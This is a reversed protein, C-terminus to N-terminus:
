AYLEVSGDAGATSYTIGVNANLSGSGVLRLHLTSPQVRFTHAQGYDLVFSSVVTDGVTFTKDTWTVGDNSEQIKYTLQNVDSLNELVLLLGGRVAGTFKFVQVLSPGVAAILSRHTIM